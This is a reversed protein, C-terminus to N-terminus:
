DFFRFWVVAAFAKVGDKWTIKKGEAYTRGNYRIAVEHIRLGLRSVKVTFEPDFAFSNARLRIQDLITRRFAKYCTEIDTLNQHTVANCFRTILRNGLDHHVTNALGLFRSGYVVDAKGEVILRLLAPYDRPDYELDADQVIIVEGTAHAFGSRLAAGKGRNERHYVLKLGPYSGLLQRLRETTGDTSGDDVVIIEKELAVAQVRAVIEEITGIENYAPIVVSVRLAGFESHAPRRVSDARPTPAHGTSMEYGPPGM